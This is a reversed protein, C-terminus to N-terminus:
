AMQAIGLLAAAASTLSVLAVIAAAGIAIKQKEIQDQTRVKM